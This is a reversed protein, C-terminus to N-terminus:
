SLGGSEPEKELIRCFREYRGRLGPNRRPEFIRGKGPKPWHRPSQFALWAVGRVTAETDVPRYVGKGSLDAMKQCLDDLHSLGGSIRLQKVALGAGDM